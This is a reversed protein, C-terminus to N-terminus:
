LVNSFSIAPRWQCGFCGCCKKTFDGTRTCRTTCNRNRKAQYISFDISSSRRNQGIQLSIRKDARSQAIKNVIVAQEVGDVYVSAMTDHSVKKISDRYTYLRYLSFIFGVKLFVIWILGAFVSRDKLVRRHHLHGETQSLISSALWIRMVFIRCKSQSMMHVIGKRLFPVDIILEAAKRFFCLYIIIVFLSPNVSAISCIDTYLKYHM